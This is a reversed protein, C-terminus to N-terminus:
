PFAPSEYKKQAVETIKSEMSWISVVASRLSKPHHWFWGSHREISSHLPRKPESVIIGQVGTLVSTRKTSPMTKLRHVGCLHLLQETGEFLKINPWYKWDLSWNTKRRRNTGPYRSEGNLTEIWSEKIPWPRIGHKTQTTLDSLNSCACVSVCEYVSNNIM